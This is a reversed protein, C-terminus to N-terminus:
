FPMVKAVFSKEDFGFQKDLFDRLWKGFAVAFGTGFALAVVELAKKPDSLDIKLALVAVVGASVGARVGRYLIIAWEPFKKM